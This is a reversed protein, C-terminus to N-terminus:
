GPVVSIKVELIEDCCSFATTIWERGYCNRAQLNQGCIVTPIGLGLTGLKVAADEKFNGIIMNGIEGMADLVESDVQQFNTMFMKSGLVCALSASCAVSGSGSWKGAFGVLAVVGDQLQPAAPPGNEDVPKVAIDFMTTFVRQTSAVALSRIEDPSLPCTM